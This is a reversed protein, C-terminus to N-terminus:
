FNDNTLSCKVAYVVQRGKGGRRNCVELEEYQAREARVDGFEKKKLDKSKCSPCTLDRKKVEM